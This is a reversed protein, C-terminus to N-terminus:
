FDKQKTKKTFRFFAFVGDKDNKQHKDFTIEEFFYNERIIEEVFDVNSLPYRMIITDYDCLHSMDFEEEVDKGNKLVQYLKNTQALYAMSQYCDKGSLQKREAFYQKVQEKNKIKERRKSFFKDSFGHAVVMDIKDKKYDYYDLFNQNDILVLINDKSREEEQELLSLIQKYSDFEKEILSLHEKTFQLFICVFIFCLCSSQFFHRNKLFSDVSIDHVVSIMFVLMMPMMVFFYRLVILCSQSNIVGYLYAFCWIFFMVFLTHYSPNLNQISIRNQHGGIQRLFYFMCCILVAFSIKNGCLNYLIPFIYWFSQQEGWYNFLDYRHNAAVAVIWPLFLLFCIIYSIVNRFLIKRKLWLYFDTLGYAAILLGGYWHSYALLSLILGFKIINTVSEEQLRKFYFWYSMASFFSMFAYPRVQLNVHWFVFSFLFFVYVFKCYQRGYLGCVTKSIFYIIGLSALISPIKLWFQCHSIDYFVSLVMYYLPLNYLNASLESLTQLLSKGHVFRITWALEDYWLGRNLATYVSMSLFVAYFLCDLYKTKSFDNYKKYFWEFCQHYMKMIACGFMMM